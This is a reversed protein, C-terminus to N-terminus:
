YTMIPVPHTPCPEFSACKLEKCYGRGQKAYLELLCLESLYCGPNNQSVQVAFAELEGLAFEPQGLLGILYNWPSANNVARSIQAKCYELEAALVPKTFGSTHSIVFHRHNWGSNNRVDDAILKDVYKLENEWNNFTLLVWQRHSWAHYNKADGERELVLAVHELEGLPKDLLTVIERRHHWLQYNKPSEVALEACWSLEVLLDSNLAKLCQRRYHWATYNAPNQALVFSTLELARESKENRKMLARFYDHLQTFERTYAIPVVPNPGDDQPLPVLDSWKADTPEFM